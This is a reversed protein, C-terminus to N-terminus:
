ALRAKVHYKVVALNADVALFYRHKQAIIDVFIQPSINQRAAQRWTIIHALLLEGFPIRDAALRHALGQEPKFALM